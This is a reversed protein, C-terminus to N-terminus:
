QVGVFWVKLTEEVEVQFTLHLAFHMAHAFDWNERKLSERRSILYLPCSLMNIIKSDERPSKKDNNNDRLYSVRLRQKSIDCSAHVKLILGRFFPLCSNVHCSVLIVCSLSDSKSYIDLFAHLQLYFMLKLSLFERCCCLLLLNCGLFLLFFSFSLGSTSCSTGVSHSALFIFSLNWSPTLFLIMIKGDTDGWWWSQFSFSM